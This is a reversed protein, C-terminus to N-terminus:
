ATNARTIQEVDTKQARQVEIDQSPIKGAFPLFTDNFGRICFHATGLARGQRCAPPPPPRRQSVTHSIVVLYIRIKLFAVSLPARDGWLPKLPMHWGM